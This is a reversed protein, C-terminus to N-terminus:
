QPAGPNVDSATWAALKDQSAMIDAARVLSELYALGWRGYKRQLRAFRQPVERVVAAVEQANREPDLAEEVPFHPRARGHHAAILHMVLDRSTQDLKLFDDDSQLDILSGLEHRYKNADLPRTNGSKAWATELRLPQYARNGIARQWVTRNKGLDHWRAALKVATAEPEALQLKAVIRDAFDGACRLHPPLDQKERATRSGEDDASRPRVYWRWLRRPPAQESEGDNEDLDARTDIERVLRMSPDAPPDDDWRRCRRQHGAADMWQDAIDYNKNYDRATEVYEAKGNLFGTPVTGNLELGGARPPLIVTKYRLADKDRAVLTKLTVIEVLGRNDAIWIPMQSDRDAIVKLKDSIRDYRDRLLEHPKLPYDDLLDDPSNQELLDGQILEVEERWAVYTEPAQWEAIGHLWDDVPPRGPLDRITTLAWADFLIDTAPLIVPCPTFTTAREVPDLAALAAPSANHNPLKRILDLTRRCREQYEEGAPNKKAKASADAEEYVIDIQASRGGFRNVRGFRQAMSDFPTVDCVMHDASMDIGVEGASTCLLYVAGQKHMAKSQPYFRAFIGGEKLLCEREYGRMTGTLKQVNEKCGAKRLREAVKELDDLKRLFILIATSSDKYALALDAVKEAIGNSDACHFKLAKSADLRLAVVPDIRDAASLISAAGSRADRQTATLALVHMRHYEDCRQQEGVITELLQQFAPELHAEDHVLLVDQALFGAHLPRTNRGRGYGSFLLRSGIMDVTGVVIAPRAPDDRWEANDAFEGRLTSIALPPLPRREPDDPDLTRAPLSALNECVEALAPDSLAVRLKEAVETSQDVVTRRNVVYVLRRPFGGLIGLRAREALALLWIGIIFTKGLGTPLDCSSRFPPGALLEAYLATQWPFPPNGTLARFRDSFEATEM